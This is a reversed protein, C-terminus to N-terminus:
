INCDALANTKDYSLLQLLKEHYRRSFTQFGNFAISPPMAVAVMRVVLIARLPQLDVRMEGSYLYILKTRSKIFDWFVFVFDFAFVNFQLGGFFEYLMKKGGFSIIVM